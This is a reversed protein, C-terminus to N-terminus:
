ARGIRDIKPEEYTVGGDVRQVVLGCGALLRPLVDEVYFVDVVEVLLRAGAGDRIQYANHFWPEDGWRLLLETIAAQVEPTEPHLRLDPQDGPRASGM